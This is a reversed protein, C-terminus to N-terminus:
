RVEGRFLWNPILYPNEPLDPAMTEKRLTSGIPATFSGFTSSAFTLLSQASLGDDLMLDSGNFYVKGLATTLVQGAGAPLPSMQASYGEPSQQASLSFALSALTALLTTSSRTM